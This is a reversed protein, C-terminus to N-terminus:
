CSENWGYIGGIRTVHALGAHCPARSLTGVQTMDGRVSQPDLPANYVPSIAPSIRVTACKKPKGMQPRKRGPTPLRAARLSADPYVAISSTTSPTAIPVSLAQTLHRQLRAASTSPSVAANRTRLRWGQQRVDISSRSFAAQVSRAPRSRLSRQQVATEPPELDRIQAVQCACAFLHAVAVDTLQRGRRM